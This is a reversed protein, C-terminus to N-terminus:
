EPDELKDLLAAVRSAAADQVRKLEDIESRLQGCETELERVRQILGQIKQRLLKFETEMVKVGELLQM